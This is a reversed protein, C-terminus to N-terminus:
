SASSHSPSSSTAAEPAPATRPAMPVLRDRHQPHQHLYWRTRVEHSTLLIVQNRKSVDEILFSVGRDHHADDARVFPDELLVPIREGDATLTEGIALRLALCVQDYAGRGLEDADAPVPTAADGAQLRPVLDAEVEVGVLDSRFWRLISAVRTSVAGSWAAPGATVSAPTSPPSANRLRGAYMEIAEDLNRDRAIGVTELRDGIERRLESVRDGAETLEQETAEVRERTAEIEHQLEFHRAYGNLMSELEEPSLTTPDTDDDVVYSGIKERLAVEERDVEENQRDLREVDRIEARCQQWEEYTALLTRGDALERETALESLRRETERGEEEFQDLQSLKRALKERAEDMEGRQVGRARAFLIGGLGASAAGLLRLTVLPIPVTTLFPLAVSGFLCLIAVLLPITAAKAAGRRHREIADIMSEDLRSESRTLAQNGRLITEAQRYSELFSRQEDGLAGVQRDLEAFRSPDLGREELEVRMQEREAHLRERRDRTERLRQILRDLRELDTPQAGELAGLKAKEAELEELRESIEAHDRNRAELRELETALDNKLARMGAAPDPAPPPADATAAEDDLSLLRESSPMEDPTAWGAADGPTPKPTGSPPVAPDGNLRARWRESAPVEPLTDHATTLRAAFEERRLGTWRHGPETDMPVDAGDADTVRVTGAGLDRDIRYRSGDDLRLELVIRGAGAAGPPAGYLAAVIARPLHSKGRGNPAAWLSVGRDAFRFSGRLPGFGDIRIRDIRM